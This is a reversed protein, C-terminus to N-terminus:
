DGWGDDTLATDTLFRYARQNIAFNTFRLALVKVGYQETDENLWKLLDTILRARKEADLRVAEVAALKTSTMSAVLERTSDQYDEIENM